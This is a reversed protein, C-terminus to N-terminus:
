GCSGVSVRHEYVPVEYRLTGGRPGTVDNYWYGILLIDTDDPEVLGYYRTYEEVDFKTIHSYDGDSGDRVHSVVVGTRKDATITGHSGTVTFVDSCQQAPESGGGDDDSCRRASELAGNLDITHTPNETNIDAFVYLTLKGDYMQLFVPTGAGSVSACDGYGDIKLSLGGCNTDFVVRTTGHEVGDVLNPMHIVDAPM